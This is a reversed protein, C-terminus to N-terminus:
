DQSLKMACEFLQYFQYLRSPNLDRDLESIYLRLIYDSVVVGFNSDIGISALIEELVDLVSNQTFPIM